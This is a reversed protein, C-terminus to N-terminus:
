DVPSGFLVGDVTTRVCFLRHLVIGAAFMAGCCTAFGWHTWRQLVWALALTGLVDCIAVGGLRLAHVGQGPVGLADRYACLAM